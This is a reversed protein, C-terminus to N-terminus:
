SPCRTIIISKSIGVHLGVIKPHRININKTAIHRIVMVLCNKIRFTQDKIITRDNAHRRSEKINAVKVNIRVANNRLSCFMLISIGLQIDEVVINMKLFLTPRNRTRFSSDLIVSPPITVSSLESEGFISIFFSDQLCKAAIISHNDNKQTIRM